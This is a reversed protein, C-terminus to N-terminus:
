GGQPLIGKAKVTNLASLVCDLTKFFPPLLGVAQCTLLIKFEVRYRLDLIYEFNIPLSFISFVHEEFDRLILMEKQSSHYVATLHSLVRSTSFTRLVLYPQIHAM